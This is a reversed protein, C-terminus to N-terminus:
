KDYPSFRTKSRSIKSPLTVSVSNNQAIKLINDWNFDAYLVDQKIGFEKIIAKKVLGLDVMKM